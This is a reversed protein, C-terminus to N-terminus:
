QTSAKASAAPSAPADARALIRLARQYLFEAPPPGAAAAASSLLAQRAADDTEGLSVLLEQTHAHTAGFAILASSLAHLRAERSRAEDGGAAAIEAQQLYAAYAFPHLPRGQRALVDLTEKLLSQAAADDGRAHAIHAMALLTRPLEGDFQVRQADAIASLRSYATADGHAIAIETQAERCATASPHDPIGWQGYATLARDIQRQAEDFSGLGILARADACNSRIATEDHFTERQEGEARQFAAHARAYDGLALLAMGEHATDKALYPSQIEASQNGLGQLRSYLRQAENARGLHLLLDAIVRLHFIEGFHVPGQNADDKASVAAILETARPLNEQDIAIGSLSFKSYSRGQESKAVTQHADEAVLREGIQAARAYNGSARLADMLTASASRAVDDYAPGREATARVIQELPGIVAAIDRQYLRQEYVSVQTALVLPDDASKFRILADHAAQYHQQAQAYRSNAFYIDGMAVHLNASVSPQDAFERDIRGATKELLERATV